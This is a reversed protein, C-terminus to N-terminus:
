IGKNHGSGAAGAPTVLAACIAHEFAAGEDASAAIGSIAKRIGLLKELELPRTFELYLEPVTKRPLIMAGSPIEKTVSRIAAIPIRLEALLGFRLWVENESVLSPRLEFARGMAMAWFAGYLSLGTAIWAAPTSWHAVVLHVPLIELLSALGVFLLIDQFGSRRHLTFCQSQPTFHPKAKWALGYYLM